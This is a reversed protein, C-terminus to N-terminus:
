EEYQEAEKIQEEESLYRNLYCKYEAGKSEFVYTPKIGLASELAFLKVLDEISNLEIKVEYKGRKTM